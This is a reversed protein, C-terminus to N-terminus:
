NWFKLWGGGINEIGSKDRGGGEIGAPKLGAASSDGGGASIMSSDSGFGKKTKGAPRIAGSM